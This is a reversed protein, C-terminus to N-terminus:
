TEKRLEIVNKANDDVVVVVVVEIVFGFIWTKLKYMIKGFSKCM